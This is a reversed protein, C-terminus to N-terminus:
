HRYNPFTPASALGVDHYHIEEESLNANLPSRNWDFKHKCAVAALLVAYAESWRAGSHCELFWRRHAAASDERLGPSNALAIIHSAVSQADTGSHVPMSRGYMAEYQGTEYRAVVPLGCAMAELGASGYYGLAFQDVFMDASRLWDRLLAKGGVPLVITRGAFGWEHLQALFLDKDDGWGIIVLRLGPAAAFASRLAELLLQQGKYFEDLRSTTLVFCDGGVREIWEARARGPAPCYVTEDLIFPITVLHRFGFRRAHAYSWPNSAFFISAKAFAARQARGLTDDRSAEYWIDGGIQCAAYPRGTLMALYPFQAAMVVDYRALERITPLHSILGWYRLMAGAAPANLLRSLAPVVDPDDARCVVNGPESLQIGHRVLDDVTHKGDPLIGDFHEWGPSSMIYRDRPHLITTVDYGHRRM